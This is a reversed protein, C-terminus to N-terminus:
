PGSSRGHRSQIVKVILRQVEDSSAMNLHTLDRLYAYESNLRTDCNRICTGSSEASVPVGRFVPIHDTDPNSEYLNWCYDVNGPVTIGVTPEVMVMTSVRMGARQLQRALLCASDGGSSYGVIVIPGGMRQRKILSAAMPYMTPRFNYTRYGCTRLQKALLNDNPWYGLGGRLMVVTGRYDSAHLSLICTNVIALAGLSVIAM